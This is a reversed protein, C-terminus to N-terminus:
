RGFKGNGPCHINDCARCVALRIEVVAALILAWFLVLLGLNRWLWVQPFGIIFLLSLITWLFEAKTYPGTKRNKFMRAMMGPFVHGCNDRSSCKSCFAYLVVLIASGSLVLYGVGLGVAEQFLIRAALVLAILVLGLSTLGHIKKSM